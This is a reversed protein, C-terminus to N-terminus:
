SRKIEKLLKEIEQQKKEQYGLLEFRIINSTAGSTM